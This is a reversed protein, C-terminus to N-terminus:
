IFSIIIFLNIIIIIIAPTVKLDLPLSHGELIKEVYSKKKSSIQVPEILVIKASLPLFRHIYM